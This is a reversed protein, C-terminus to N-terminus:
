SKGPAWLHAFAAALDRVAEAQQAFSVEAPEIKDALRVVGGLDRARGQIPGRHHRAREGHGVVRRGWGGGGRPGSPDPCFDPLLQADQSASLGRGGFRFPGRVQVKTTPSLPNSGGVEQGGTLRALWVAGCGTVGRCTTPGRHDEPGRQPHSRSVASWGPAALPAGPRRWVVPRGGAPGCAM